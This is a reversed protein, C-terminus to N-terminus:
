HHYWKSKVLIGMAVEELATPLIASDDEFTKPLEFMWEVSLSKSNYHFVRGWSQCAM